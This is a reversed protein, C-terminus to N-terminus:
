GGYCVYRRVQQTLTQMEQVREFVVGVERCFKRRASMGGPVAAFRPNNPPPTQPTNTPTTGVIAQNPQTIYTCVGVGVGVGM